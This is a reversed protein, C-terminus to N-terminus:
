PFGSACNTKWVPLVSTVIVPEFTIAMLLLLCVQSFTYQITPEEAVISPALNKPFVMAVVLMESFAPTCTDPLSHAKFPATVNILSVIEAQQTLTASAGGDESLLSKTVPLPDIM